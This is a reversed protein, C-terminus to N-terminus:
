LHGAHVKNGGDSVPPSQPPYGSPAALDAPAKCLLVRRAPLESKPYLWLVLVLALTTVGLNWHEFLEGAM